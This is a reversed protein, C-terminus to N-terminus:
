KAPLSDLLAQAQALVPKFFAEDPAKSAYCQRFKLSSAEEAKNEADFEKETQKKGSKERAAAGADRAKEFDKVITECVPISSNKSEVNAKIIIVRKDQQVTIYMEDPVLPVADQTSATLTAYVSTANAPKAVPLDAYRLVEAGASIAQTYFTDTKVADDPKQPINKNKWWTRHAVLWRKFLDPTTVLVDTGTSENSFVMGDLLGYGEDGDSLAELSPKGKEPVGKMQFPGIIAQMQKELDAIASEYAKTQADESNSKETKKLAQIHRDRSALYSEEPTASWATSAAVFVLASLLCKVSINTM